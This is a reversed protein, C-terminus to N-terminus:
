NVVILVQSLFLIQLVIVTIWNIIIFKTWFNLKKFLVTMKESLFDGAPMEVPIYILQLM